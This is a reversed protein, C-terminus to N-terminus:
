PGLSVREPERLAVADGTSVIEHIYFSTPEDDSAEMVPSPASIIRLAGCAGIWDVHRHGHMTVVRSAVPALQRVFWSGNILATGIRESLAKAPRPYELLHHHLAVIWSARAHNEMVAVAARVDLAPALGLANTFSFHTEANSNLLAVGLGDPEPPPLVMPFCDEWLSELRRSLRLSGSDAFAAIEARHPQLFETLTPGLEGTRRDVVRVRGGQVAEMASLARMQRLRKGPSTPLDLRAPNGRDAINLDHNGPLMLIREALVPHRSLAALFAAWEGTRGADTMDGTILIHDVPHARQIAELRALAEEFRRDGRPGARGSEIRFGCDDGVVHIDSLHAVRWTRAPDAVEDFRRTTLLQDMAADAAGWALSAAGFFASVLVVANALAPVVLRMPAAFDAWEGTWRTYPWVWAILALAVLAALGGAAASTAARLRARSAESMRSGAVGELVHRLVERALVYGPQVAISNLSWFSRELARLLHPFGLWGVGVVLALILASGIGALAAIRDLTEVFWIKAVLPAAGLVLGPLGILLAWALALKPFSIESILSGGIAFLSRTKTSLLDDEVDGRRPDLIARSSLDTGGAREDKALRGQSSM